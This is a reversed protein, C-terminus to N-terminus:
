MVPIGLSLASSAYPATAHSIHNPVNVLCTLLLSSVSAFLNLGRIEPDVDRQMTM